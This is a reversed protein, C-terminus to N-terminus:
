EDSQDALSWVGLNLIEMCYKLARSPKTSNIHNDFTSLRRGLEALEHNDRHDWALDALDELNRRLAEVNEQSSSEPTNRLAATCTFLDRRLSCLKARVSISVHGICDADTQMDSNDLSDTFELELNEDNIGAPFHGAAPSCIRILVEWRERLEIMGPVTHFCRSLNSLVLMDNKMAELAEEAVGAEKQLLKGLDNVRKLM